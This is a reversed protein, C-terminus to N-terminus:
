LSCSLRLALRTAERQMTSPLALARSASVEVSLARYQFSAGLTIGSLTGSPVGPARNRVKGIDYAAYVRGAGAELAFPLGLENRWIAGDDGSLSSDFFGRVTSVGGISIQQAGFLTDFAHQASFQSSWLWPRDAMLFRRSFGLDLNVKRFRAHPLDDPLGVPDDIGGLAPLGRTFGFRGNAIGGLAATFGSASLDLTTQQRSTVDLFQGALWARSDQTGLRGALSVRSARDRYVVRDLTLGAVTTRGESLLGVAAPTVILNAYRSESLDLSVTSYGWPVSFALADARSKHEGDHPVSERHTLSVLENLGLLSDLSLTAALSDRGTARAGLSDYTLLLRVPRRAANRVLVVSQGPESGPRLDLQADNSALRNIQDIGQELDRLNLLDGPKAPFAGPPWQAAARSSDIDFREITGEVVRVVLTGTRLDQAPLYARTTVYGRDIYIKTLRALIAELDSSGLCRGSFGRQLVQRDAEPLRTAGEIRLERIDRCPVGLEPVSIKPPAVEPAPARPTTRERAREQQERLRDQLQREILENQRGIDAPATQAQAVQLLLLLLLCVWSRRIM